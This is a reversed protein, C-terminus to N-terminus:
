DNLSGWQFASNFSEFLVADMDFQAKHNIFTWLDELARPSLSEVSPSFAVAAHVGSTVYDRFAQESRLAAPPLESLLQKNEAVIETWMDARNHKRRFSM